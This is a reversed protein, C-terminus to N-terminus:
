SLKKTHMHVSVTLWLDLFTRGQKSVLHTERASVLQSAAWLGLSRGTDAEGASPNSCGGCRAKNTCSLMTLVTSASRSWGALLVTITIVSVYVHRDTYIHVVHKM